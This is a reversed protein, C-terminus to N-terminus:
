IIGHIFSYRTRTYYNYKEYYIPDMPTHDGNVMIILQMYDIYLIIRTVRLHLALFLPWRKRKIMMQKYSCHIHAIFFVLWDLHVQWESALGAKKDLYDDRYPSAWSTVLWDRIDILHAQQVLCDLLSLSQTPRKTTWFQLSHM